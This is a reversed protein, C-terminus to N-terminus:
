RIRKIGNQRNSWMKPKVESEYDVKKEIESSSRLKSM